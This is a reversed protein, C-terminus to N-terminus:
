SKEGMKEGHSEHFPFDDDLGATLLTAPPSPTPMSSGTTTTAAAATLAGFIM